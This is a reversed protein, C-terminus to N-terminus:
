NKQSAVACPGDHGHLENLVQYSELDWVRITGDSCGLIVVERGPRWCISRARVPLIAINKATKIDWLSM